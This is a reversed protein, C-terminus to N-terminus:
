ALHWCTVSGTPARHCAKLGRWLFIFIAVVTLAGVLGVESFSCFIFDSEAEPLYM